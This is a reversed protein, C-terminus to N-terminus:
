LRELAEPTIADALEERAQEILERVRRGEGADAHIANHRDRGASELLAPLEDMLPALARRLVDVTLRRIAAAYDEEIRTPPTQRPLRKRPPAGVEERVLRATRRIRRTGRGADARFTGAPVYRVIRRIM